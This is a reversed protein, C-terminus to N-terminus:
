RGKQPVKVCAYCLSTDTKCMHYWTTGLHPLECLHEVFLPFPYNIYNWRQTHRMVSRILALGNETPKQKSWMFSSLIRVTNKTIFVETRQCAWRHKWKTYIRLLYFESKMFVLPSYVSKYCGSIGISSYQRWQDLSSSKKSYSTHSKVDGWSGLIELPHPTDM